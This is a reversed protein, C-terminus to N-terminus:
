LGAKLYARWFVRTREKERKVYGFEDNLEEVVGEDREEGDAEKRIEEVYGEVRKAVEYPNLAFTTIMAFYREEFFVEMIGKALTWNSMSGSLSPVNIFASNTFPYPPKTPTNNYLTRLYTVTSSVKFPNPLPPQTTTLLKLFISLDTEISSSSTPHLTFDGKVFGVSLARGLNSGDTLLRLSFNHSNVLLTLPKKTSISTPHLTQTSKDPLIITIPQKHQEVQHKLHEIFVSTAEIQFKGAPKGKITGGQRSPIQYPNPRQYVPLSKTYALKWAEILIRPFTALATLPYVLTLHLATWPTLPYPTGWVHAMMHKTEKDEGISHTSNGDASVLEHELTFEYDKVILMVDMKGDGAQVDKVHTEYIGTRNNFPSVHFRRKLRYSGAYNKRTTPLQTTPDCLYLHREGFTNNVELLICRLRLPASPSSSPYYCYYTNLPNFAIGFFRPSTVLEVHGIDNRSVGLVELHALLKEKISESPSMCHSKEQKQQQLGASSPGTAPEKQVPMSGFSSDDVSAASYIEPTAASTGAATKLSLATRASNVSGLYDRNYVSFLSPRNYGFIWRSFISSPPPSELADLNLGFYIVPYKFSHPKPKFRAHFTTALYIKHQNRQSGRRGKKSQLQQKASEIADDSGRATDQAEEQDDLDDSPKWPASPTPVLHTLFLHIVLLSSVTVALPSLLLNAM